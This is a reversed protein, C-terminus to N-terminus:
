LNKKAAFSFDKPKFNVDNLIKLMGEGGVKFVFLGQHYAFKDAKQEIRVGIMAGYIRFGKYYPYFLLFEKLKQLFNKVDGVGMTTKVEGVVVEDENSLLFDLEMDRGNKHSELRRSLNSVKIERTQLIQLIGSEALSEVLKGWQGTFLNALEKIKKDTEKFKIDTENFRRDLRADTEKFLAWIEKVSKEVEEMTM